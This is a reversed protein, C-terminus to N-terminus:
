VPEPLFIIREEAGANRKMMLIKKSEKRTLPENSRSEVWTTYIGGHAEDVNSYIRVDARSLVAEVDM